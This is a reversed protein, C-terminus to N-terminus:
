CPPPPSPPETFKGKKNTFFYSCLFFFPPLERRKTFSLSLSFSFLTHRFDQLESLRFLLVRSSWVPKRQPYSLSGAPSLSFCLCSSPFPFCSSLEKNYGFQEVTFPVLSERVNGQTWSSIIGRNLDASALKSVPTPWMDGAQDAIVKSGRRAGALWLCEWPLGKFSLSLPLPSWQM